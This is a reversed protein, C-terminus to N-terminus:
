PLPFCKAIRRFKKYALSGIGLHFRCVAESILRRIEVELYVLVVGHSSLFVGFLCFAEMRESSFRENKNINRLTRLVSQLSPIISKSYIGCTQSALRPGSRTLFSDDRGQSSRAFFCTFPDKQESLWFLTYHECNVNKNM